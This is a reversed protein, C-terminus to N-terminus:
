KIGDLPGEIRITPFFILYLRKLLNKTSISDIKLILIHFRFNVTWKGKKVSNGHTGTQFRFNVPRVYNVM